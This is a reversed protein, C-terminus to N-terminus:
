TRKVWRFRVNVRADPTDALDLLPRCVSHLAIQQILSVARRLEIQYDSLMRVGNGSPGACRAAQHPWPQLPDDGGGAVHSCDVLLTASVLLAGYLCNMHTRLHLLRALHDTLSITFGKSWSAVAAFPQDHRRRVFRHHDCDFGHLYPTRQCGNCNDGAEQQKQRM